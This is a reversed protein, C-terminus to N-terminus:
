FFVRHPLPNGCGGVARLYLITRKIKEPVSLNYDMLLDTETSIAPSSLLVKVKKPLALLDTKERRIMVLRELVIQLEELNRRGIYLVHAKFRRLLSNERKPDM